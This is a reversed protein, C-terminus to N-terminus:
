RQTCVFTEKQKNEIQVIDFPRKSTVRLKLKLEKLLFTALEMPHM